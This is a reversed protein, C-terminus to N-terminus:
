KISSAFDGKGVVASVLSHQVVVAPVVSLLAAQAVLAPKKTARDYGPAQGIAIWAYGQTAPYPTFSQGALAPFTQQALALADAQNKPSAGGDLSFAGLSAANIEVTLDGSVSGSGYSVSAAGNNLIAGYSRAAVKATAAQAADGASPLKILRQIEGTLGGAQIITVSIGLVQQAYTTVAASAEAPDTVAPPTIQAAATAAANVAAVAATALAKETPALQSAQAALTAALATATAPLHALATGAQQGGASVTPALETAKAALTAELGTATGPLGALATAAPGSAAQATQALAQATASLGGTDIGRPSCGLLGGALALVLGLKLGRVVPREPRSRRTPM